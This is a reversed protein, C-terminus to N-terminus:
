TDSPVVKTSRRPLIMVCVPEESAPLWDPRLRGVELWGRNLYLNLPEHHGAVVDLVPAGDSTLARQTAHALLASGVGRRGLRRDAFLVSICRLETIPVNHATAWMRGLEDNAVSEIAVHGVVSGDIEAVWAELESPRRVFDEVDGPWPWRLPYQTQAQQRVIIDILSPMDADRRPRISLDSM